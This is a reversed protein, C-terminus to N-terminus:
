LRYTTLLMNITVSSFCQCQCNDTKNMPLVSLQVNIDACYVTGGNKLLLLLLLLLLSNIYHM